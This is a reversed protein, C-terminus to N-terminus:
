IMFILCVLSHVVNLGCKTQLFVVRGGHSGGFVSLRNPDIKPRSKFSNSVSRVFTYLYFLLIRLLVLSECCFRLRVLIIGM